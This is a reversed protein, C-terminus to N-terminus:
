YINNKGNIKYGEEMASDLFAVMTASCSNQYLQHAAHWAAAGREKRAADAASQLDKLLKGLAVRESAVASTTTAAATTTTEVHGAAPISGVANRKNLCALADADLGGGSPHLVLTKVLQLDDARVAVHITTDLTEEDAANSAAGAARLARAANM